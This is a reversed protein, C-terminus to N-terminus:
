DYIFYFHKIYNLKWMCIANSDYKVESVYLSIEMKEPKM